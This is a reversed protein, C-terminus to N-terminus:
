RSAESPETAKVELVKRVVPLSIIFTTGVGIKSTVGIEGGLNKVINKCVSLGLGSGHVDDKGWVGKTSFFPDFIRSFNDEPIGAGSDAVKIIARDGEQKLVITIVGGRKIAQKANILLNLIVQQMKNASVKVHPRDVFNTITEIGGTAFEKATFKLTDNILEGLDKIAVDDPRRGSYTLLSLAIDNAKEGALIIQEFSERVTKLADHDDLCSLAFSANGIIGALYNKFEHAIGAALTGISIFKDTEVLKARRQHEFTLDRVIITYSSLGSILIKSVSAQLPFSEGSGRVGKTEVLFRESSQGQIKELLAPIIQTISGSFIENWSYGFISEAAANLTQLTGDGEMVIIGDAATDLIAELRYKSEIIQREAMKRETIDRIIALFRTKDGFRMVCFSTDVAFITGDKRVAEAEASFQKFEDLVHECFRALHSDQNGLNCEPVLLNINKGVVEAESYQFTRGVSPNISEIIGSEDTTIICDAAACIIARTRTESARLADEAQKRETIERQIQAKQEFFSVIMGAVAGFESKQTKLGKLVAPDGFRLSQSTLALPRSVWRRLLLSLSLVTVVLFVMFLVTQFSETRGLESMLASESRDVVIRIPFGDWGRLLKTCTIVGAIAGTDPMNAIDLTAPALTIESETLKEIANIYDSSWLRAAFFYGKAPTLLSTDNAPQIVAGRVELLGYRSEAFFHTSPKTTLVKILTERTIPLPIEVGEEVGNHSYVTQLNAALVWALDGDYMTAGVEINVQAWKPDRSTVFAVSEDWAFDRVFTELSKGNLEIVKDLLESQQQREYAFTHAIRKKEFHHMVLAVGVFALTILTVLGTIKTQTKIM